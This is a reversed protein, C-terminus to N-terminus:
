REKTESERIWEPMPFGDDDKNRRQELKYNNKVGKFKLEWESHNV